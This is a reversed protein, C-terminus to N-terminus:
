HEPTEAELTEAEQLPSLLEEKKLEAELSAELLDITIQEIRGEGDKELLEEQEGKDLDYAYRTLREKMEETVVNHNHTMRQVFAPFEGFDGAAYREEFEAKEQEEGFKFIPLGQELRELRETIKRGAYAQREKPKAKSRLEDLEAYTSSEVARVVITAKPHAQRAEDAENATAVTVITAQQQAQQLTQQQAQPAAQQQQAQPAAQDFPLDAYVLEEKPQVNEYIEEEEAKVTFTVNEYPGPVETPPFTETVVTTVVTTEEKGKKTFKGKGTKGGVKGKGVTVVTTEAKKPTVNEYNGPAATKPSGTGTGTPIPSGTGTRTPIPSGKPSSGQRGHM